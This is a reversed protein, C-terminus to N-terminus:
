TLNRFWNVKFMTTQRTTGFIDALGARRVYSEIIKTSLTIGSLLWSFQGTATPHERQQQMIHQGVTTIPSVSPTDM